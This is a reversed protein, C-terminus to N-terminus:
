EKENPAEPSSAPESPEAEDAKSRLDPFLREQCPPCLGHSFEADSHEQLFLEIQTWFGEDNRISKCSACIPVLGSLTRVESLAIELQKKEEELRTELGFRGAELGLAMVTVILYTISFRLAL